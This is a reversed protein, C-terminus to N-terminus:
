ISVWQELHHITIYDLLPRNRKRRIENAPIYNKEKKMGILWLSASALYKCQSDFPEYM